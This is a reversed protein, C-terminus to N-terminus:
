GDYRCTSTTLTSTVVTAVYGSAVYFHTPTLASEGELPFSFGRGSMKLISEKRTWLRYFGRRRRKDPFRSLEGREFQNFFGDALQQYNLADDKEEIDVGVEDDVTLAIVAWLGSHSLNFRLISNHQKELCPKGYDNYNFHISDPALQLYKGLLQRLKLRVVIFQKKKLPDLLRQGRAAEERSLLHQAEDEHNLNALNLRWLHLEGPYIDLNDPATQWRTTKLNV